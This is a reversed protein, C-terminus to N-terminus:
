SVGAAGATEGAGAAVGGTLFFADSVELAVVGAFDFLVFFHNPRYCLSRLVRMCM